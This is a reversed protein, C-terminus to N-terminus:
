AEYVALRTRHSCAHVNAILEKCKITDRIFVLQMKSKQTLYYDVLTM